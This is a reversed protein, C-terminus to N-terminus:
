TVYKIQWCRWNNKSFIVKYTWNQPNLQSTLCKQPKSFLSIELPLFIFILKKLFYKLNKQLSNQKGKYMEGKLESLDLWHGLNVEWKKTKNYNLSSSKHSYALNIKSSRRPKTVLIHEMRFKTAPMAVNQKTQRIVASRSDKKHKEWVSQIKHDGM